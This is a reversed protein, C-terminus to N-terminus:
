IERNREPSIKGKKLKLVKKKNEQVFFKNKFDKVTLDLECNNEEQRKRERDLNEIQTHTNNM